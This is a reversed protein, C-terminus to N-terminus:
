TEKASRSPSAARAAGHCLVTATQIRALTSLTEDMLAIKLRLVEEYKKRNAETIIRM